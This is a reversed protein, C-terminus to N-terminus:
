MAAVAIDSRLGPILGADEHISGLNLIEQHHHHHINLM